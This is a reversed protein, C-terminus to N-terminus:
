GSLVGLNITYNNSMFKVKQDVVMLTPQRLEKNLNDRYIGIPKHPKFRSM